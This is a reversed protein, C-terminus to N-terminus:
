DSRVERDSRTETVASALKKILKDTDQSELGQEACLKQILTVCEQLSSLVCNVSVDTVEVCDTKEQIQLSNMLETSVQIVNERSHLSQSLSEILENKNKLSTQTAFCILYTNTKCVPMM